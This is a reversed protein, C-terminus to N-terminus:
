SASVGDLSPADWDAYFTTSRFLTTEGEFPASAEIDRYSAGPCSRPASAGQLWLTALTPSEYTSGWLVRESSPLLNTPSTKKALAEDVYTIGAYRKELSRANYTLGWSIVVTNFCFLVLDGTLTRQTYRETCEEDIFWGHWSSCGTRRGAEDAAGSPEFATNASATETYCVSELGLRAAALADRKYTVTFEIELIEPMAAPTAEFKVPFWSAAGNTPITVSAHRGGVINWGKAESSLTASYTGYTYVRGTKGEGTQDLEITHVDGAVDAEGISCSYTGYELPYPLAGSAAEEELIERAAAGCGKVRITSAFRTLEEDTPDRQLLAYVLASSADTLTKYSTELTLDELADEIAVPVTKSGTEVLNTLSDMSSTPISLNAFGRNLNDLLISAVNGLGSQTLTCSIGAAPAWGFALGAYNDFAQSVSIGIDTFNLFCYFCYNLRYDSEYREPEVSFCTIRAFASAGEFVCASDPPTAGGAYSACMYQGYTGWTLGSVNHLSWTGISTPIIGGFASTDWIAFSVLHHAGYGSRGCGSSNNALIAGTIPDKWRDSWTNSGAETRSFTNNGFAHSRLPWDRQDDNLYDLGVDTGWYSRSNGLTYSTNVSTCTAVIDRHPRDGPKLLNAGDELINIKPKKWANKSSSHAYQTAGWAVGGAAAAGLVATAAILAHRRSICRSEAGDQPQHVAKKLQPTADQPQPARVQSQSVENHPQTIEKQPPCLNM